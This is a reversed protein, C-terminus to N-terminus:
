TCCKMVRYSERCYWRTRTFRSTNHMRASKVSIKDELQMRRIGNDLRRRYHSENSGKIDPEGASPGSRSYCFFDESQLHGHSGKGQDEKMCRVNV